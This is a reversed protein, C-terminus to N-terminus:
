RNILRGCLDAHCRTRQSIGGFRLITWRCATERLHYYNKTRLRDGEILARTSREPMTQLTQGSDAHHPGSSWCRFTATSWDLAAARERGALREARRGCYAHFEDRRRADELLPPLCNDIFGHFHDGVCSQGAEYRFIGASHRRGGRRVHRPGTKEETGLAYSLHPAM